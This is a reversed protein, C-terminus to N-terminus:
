ILSNKRLNWVKLESMIELNQVYWFKHMKVFNEFKQSHCFLETKWIGIILTNKRLNWVKLESMIELNQVLSSYYSTVTM